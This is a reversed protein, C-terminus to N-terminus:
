KGNESSGRIPKCTPKCNITKDQYKEGSSESELIRAMGDVNADKREQNQERKMEVFNKEIFYTPLWIRARRNTDAIVILIRDRVIISNRSKNM